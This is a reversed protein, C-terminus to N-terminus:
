KLLLLLALGGAILPWPPSMPAAPAQGYDAPADSVVGAPAASPIPNTISPARPSRPPQAALTMGQAAKERLAKRAAEVRARHEAAAKDRARQEKWRKVNEATKRIDNPVVLGDARRPLISDAVAGGDVDLPRYSIVQVGPDFTDMPDLYRGMRGSPAEGREFSSFRGPKM